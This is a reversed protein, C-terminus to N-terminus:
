FLVTCSVTNLEPNSPALHHVMSALYTLHFTSVWFITTPIQSRLSSYKLNMFRFTKQDASNFHGLFVRHMLSLKTAEINSTGKHNTKIVSLQM